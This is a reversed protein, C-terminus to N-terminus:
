KERVFFALSFIIVTVAFTAFFAVTVIQTYWSLVMWLLVVISGIKAGEARLATLLVSDASRVKQSKTLAIFVVGSVVSVAGGLLASLAGHWGAPYAALSVFVATVVLQWRLAVRAPRSPVLAVSLQRVPGSSGDTTTSGAM